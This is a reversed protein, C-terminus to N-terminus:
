YKGVYYKLVPLQLPFIKEPHDYVLTYLEKLSVWHPNRAENKNIKVVGDVECVFVFGVWPLGGNTSLVQQCIFPKFVFSKDNKKYEYTESQFDNVVQVVNLGCEEKVERKLADYVNEYGDIGGAPIEIMGSYTPSAKPKWREQLYVLAKGNRDKKQLIASIIARPKINSMNKSDLSM